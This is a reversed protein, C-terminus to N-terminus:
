KMGRLAMVAHIADHRIADCAKAAEITDAAFVAKLMWDRGPRALIEEAKKLAEGAKAKLESSNKVRQVEDRLMMMWQIDEIGERWAEFGKCPAKGSGSAYWSAFFAVGDFDMNWVTRWAERRYLDMPCIKHASNGTAKQNYTWLKQNGAKRFEKFLIQNETWNRWFSGSPVNKAQMDKLEAEADTSSINVIGHYPILIDVYKAFEKWFQPRHEILDNALHVQPAAAKLLPCIELLKKEVADANGGMGPEDWLCIGFDDWPVEKEKMHDMWQKFYSVILPKTKPDDWKLGYKEPLEKDLKQVFGYISLLKGGNRRADQIKADVEKFDLVMKGDELKYDPETLTFRNLRYRALFDIHEGGGYNYSYSDFPIRRSLELPYVEIRMSVTKKPLADDLIFAVDKLTPDDCMVTGSLEVRGEYSGAAAGTSDAEVWIQRSELPPIMITQEKPLPLVIALLNDKPKLYRLIMKPVGPGDFGALALKVRVPEKRLNSVYFGAPEIEGQACRIGIERADTLSPPLATQSVLAWQPFTWVVLGVSDLAANWAKLNLTKRRALLRLIDAKLNNAPDILTKVGGGGTRSWYWYSRQRLGQALLDFLQSEMDAAKVTSDRPPIELPERPRIGKGTLASVETDSLARGVLFLEDIKGKFPSGGLNPCSGLQLNQPSAPGVYRPEVDTKGAVAGNVYTKLVSQEADYAVVVFMWEGRPPCDAMCQVTYPPRAPQLRVWMGVKNGEVLFTWGACYGTWDGNDMVIMKGDPADKDLCLWAGVSFSGRVNMADSACVFRSNNLEVAKGVKGDQGYRAAGQPRLPAQSDSSDKLEGAADDMTWYGLTAPDKLLSRVGAQGMGSAALGVALVMGVGARCAKIM